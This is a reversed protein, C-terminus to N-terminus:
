GAHGGYKIVLAVYALLWVAALAALVIAVILDFRRFSGPPEKRM